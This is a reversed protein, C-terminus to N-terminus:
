NLKRYAKGRREIAPSVTPLLYGAGRTISEKKIRARAAEQRAPEHYWYLPIFIAILWIMVACLIKNKRLDEVTM